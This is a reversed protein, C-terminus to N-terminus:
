GDPRLTYPTAEEMACHLKCKQHRRQRSQMQLLLQRQGALWPPSLHRKYMKWDGRAQVLLGCAGLPNSALRKRKADWKNFDSGDHRCTPYKGESLCRFSWAVVELIEDFSQQKLLHRKTIATVPIRMTRNAASGPFNICVSESSESRYFNCPAGDIWLGLPVVSETNLKAKWKALHDKDEGDLNACECLSAMDSANALSAVVEHPLLFAVTKKPKM